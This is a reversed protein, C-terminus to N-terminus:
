QHLRSNHVQQFQSSKADGTSNHITLSRGITRRGDRLLDDRRSLFAGPTGRVTEVWCLITGATICPACPHCLGGVCALMPLTLVCGGLGCTNVPCLLCSLCGFCFLNTVTAHYTVMLCGHVGLAISAAMNAGAERMPPGPYDQNCSIRDCCCWAFTGCMAIGKPSFFAKIIIGLGESTDPPEEMWAPVPAITGFRDLSEEEEEPEPEPPPPPVYKKVEKIKGKAAAKEKLAAFSVPPPAAEEEEESSSSEEIAPIMMGLILPEKTKHRAKWATIIMSEIDQYHLNEVDKGNLTCLIMGRELKKNKLAAARGDGEDIGGVVTHGNLERLMIGLTSPGEFKLNQLKGKKSRGLKPM